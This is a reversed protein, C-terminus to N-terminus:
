PSAPQGAPTGTEQSLDDGAAVNKVKEFLRIYRTSAFDKARTPDIRAAASGSILAQFVRAKPNAKDQAWVQVTSVIPCSHQLTAAAFSAEVELREPNENFWQLYGVAHPDRTDVDVTGVRGSLEGKELAVKIAAECRAKLDGAGDGKEIVRKLEKLKFGADKAIAPVRAEPKMQQVRPDEMANKYQQYMKFEELTLEVGQALALSSVLLSALPLIRM